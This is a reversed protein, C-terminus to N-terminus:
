LRGDSCTQGPLIWSSGYLTTNEVSGKEPTLLDMRKESKLDGCIGCVKGLLLSHLHYVVTVTRGRQYIVYHTARSLSHTLNQNVRDPSPFPPPPILRGESLKKLLM